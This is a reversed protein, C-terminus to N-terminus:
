CASALILMWQQPCHQGLLSPPSFVPLTPSIAYIHQLIVHSPNCNAFQTQVQGAQEGVTISLILSQSILCQTLRRRHRQAISQMVQHEKRSQLQQSHGAIGTSPQMMRRQLVPSTLLLAMLSFTWPRAIVANGLFSLSLSQM